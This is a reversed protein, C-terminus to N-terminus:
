ARLTSIVSALQKVAATAADVEDAGFPPVIKADSSVAGTFSFEGDVNKANVTLVAKARLAYV